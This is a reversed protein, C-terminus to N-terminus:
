WDDEEFSVEASLAEADRALAEWADAYLAADLLVEAAELDDLEEPPEDCLLPCYLEEDEPADDDEPAAAEPACAEPEYLEPECTDPLEDEVPEWAALEELPEEDRPLEPYLAEPEPAPEPERLELLWDDDEVAWVGTEEDDPPKAMLLFIETELLARGELVM